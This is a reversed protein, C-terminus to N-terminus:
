YWGEILVLTFPWKIINVKAMATMTVTPNVANVRIQKPGLELAAVRFYYFIWFKVVTFSEQKTETKSPLWTLLERQQVTFQTTRWLLKLLRFCLFSHYLSQKIPSINKPSLSFRHHSMSLLDKEERQSWKEQWLKHLMSLKSWMPMSYALVLLIFFLICM